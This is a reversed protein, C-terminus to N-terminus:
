RAVGFIENFEKTAAALDPGIEEAGALFYKREVLEPYELKIGKRAVIRGFSAQMTQGEESLLWDLYLAAAHPHPANRLLMLESPKALYPELIVFDIPAGKSKLDLLSHAHLAIGIPREGAIILQTQLIRGRRIGVEQAALRRMYKIGESRGMQKLLTVFWDYDEDDLFMKGKWQPSLLEQYTKPVEARKLMTTNYGLVVPAIYDPAFYGEKDSDRVPFFRRQPTYYPAIVGASKLSYSINAFGGAVDVLYRGARYETEIRTIVRRGGLRSANLKLFPYRKNFVKTLQTLEEAQMAGYVVLEREAEAGKVLAKERENPTLKNYRRLIEDATGKSQPAAFGCIGLTLAVSVVIGVSIMRKM